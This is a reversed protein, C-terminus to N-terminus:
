HTFIPSIGRVNGVQLDEVMVEAEIGRWKTIASRWKAKMVNQRQADAIMDVPILLGQWISRYDRREMKMGEVNVAQNEISM